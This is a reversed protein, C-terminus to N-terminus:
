QVAKPDNIVGLFLITGTADHVIACLFPRNVVFPRPKEKPEPMAFGAPPGMMTVASAESGKEDVRLYTKHIVSTIENDRLPDAILSFDGSAPVGFSELPKKLLASYEIEFKPLSLEIWKPQFGGQMANWEDPSLAVAFDTASNGSRPLIVIMSVGGRYPLSVAEYNSGSRWRMQRDERHMFPRQKTAGIRYFPEDFTDNGSFPSEWFGKFCVANTLLLEVRWPLMPDMMQSVAGRTKESAWLNVAGAGTFRLADAGYCRAATNAYNQKPAVNSWVANAVTWEYAPSSKGNETHEPPALLGMLAQSDDNVTALPTTDLALTQLLGSRMKGTAGNAALLMAQSVSYPSLFLNEDPKLDPALERMLAIGFATTGSVVANESLPHMAIPTPTPLEPMRYEQERSPCGVQLTGWLSIACLLAFRPIQQRIKLNGM